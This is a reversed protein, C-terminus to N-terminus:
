PDEGITGRSSRYRSYRSYGPIYYEVHTLVCGLLKAKTQRLLEQAQRVVKRQTRGARVVLLTGDAIAGLIGPDTVPLVPPADIIIADYQNRLMSLLRRMNSSELLEAPREPRPGAPLVSLPPSQLKLVAGDMNLGDSLVTSLGKTSHLGLWRDVSSCRLDADILLVKLQEQQALTLALNISTVSKGEGHVASTIVLTKGGSFGKLSQLNTRLIRYQESIPSQPDTASVIHPDIEIGGVPVGPPLGAAVSSPELALLTPKPTVTPQAARERARERAAKELAQTIKSM